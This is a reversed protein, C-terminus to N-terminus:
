PSWRKAWTVTRQWKNLLWFPGGRLTLTASLNSTGPIFVTALSCYLHRLWNKNQTTSCLHGHLSLTHVRAEMAFKLHQLPCAGTGPIYFSAGMGETIPTVTVDPRLHVVIVTGSTLLGFSFSCLDAFHCSLEVFLVFLFTRLLLENMSEDSERLLSLVVTRDTGAWTLHLRPKTWLSLRLALNLLLSCIKSWCAPLLPLHAWFSTSPTIPRSSNM